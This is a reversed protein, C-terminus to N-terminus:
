TVLLTGITGPTAILNTNAVNCVINIADGNSQSSISGSVGVTTLNTGQQIRQGANQAITFGGTNMTVVQFTDGVAMTAPLTLTVQSVSNVIYGHGVVMATNTTVVSWTLGGGTIPRAALQDLARTVDTPAPSWNGPSGPTYTVAYSNTIYNITPSGSLILDSELKPASIADILVTADVGTVTFTGPNSSANIFLTHRHAAACILSWNSASVSNLNYGGGGFIDANVTTFNINSASFCSYAFGQTDQLNWDGIAYTTFMQLFDASGARGKFTLGGNFTVGILDMVCSGGALASLDWNLGTSGGVYINLVGLRTNVGGFAASPTVQNNPSTIYCINSGYGVIWIWPKLVINVAEDYRGPLVFIGYRKTTSADTISALAKALTLYPRIISGNGTTDNGNKSIWVQQQIGVPTFALNGAGDTSILSNVSGDAPPLTWTTSSSLGSLAKFASYFTNATNYWRLEKDNLIETTASSTVVGSGNPVLNIPGNSNVSIIDNNTLALNTFGSLTPIVKGRYNILYGSTADRAIFMPKSIEGPTTTETSTLLGATAPSLFYVTGAILTSMGEILGAVSLYFTDADVIGSVIGVAEANTTVDAQAKVYTSGSLRLIDGVVFGNAAQTIPVRVSGGGSGGGVTNAEYNLFYGSGIDTAIFMFKVVSTPNVPATDTLAGATVDSLYYASGPTFTGMMPFIVLGYMTIIFNDADTVESVIGVAESDAFNDAQALVYNTGDFRVIQALSFGHATQTVAHTLSNLSSNYVFQANTGNRLGVVIDGSVLPPPAVVFQSFKVPM